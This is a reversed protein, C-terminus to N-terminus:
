NWDQSEVYTGVTARPDIGPEGMTVIERKLRVKLRHFPMDPASSFKVDLEACDPLARIHGLVAAIGAASGAITGNIGEGALLLTGKIGEARALEDLPGRLAAPDAFRAFRYLAAVTVSM